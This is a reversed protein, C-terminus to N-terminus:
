PAGRRFGNRLLSVLGCRRLDVLTLDQHREYVQNHKEALDVLANDIIAKYETVFQDMLHLYQHLIM